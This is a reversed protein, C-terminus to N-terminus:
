RTTSAPWWRCRLRCSRPRQGGPGVMHAHVLDAPALRPGLWGAFAPEPTWQLSSTSVQEAVRYAGATFGYRTALALGAPTADGALVTTVVGHRRLAASLMLASLQAGGPELVGLVRVLTM